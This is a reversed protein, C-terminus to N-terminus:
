GEMEEMFLFLVNNKYCVLGLKM